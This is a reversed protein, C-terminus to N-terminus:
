PIRGEEKAVILACCPSVQVYVLLIDRGYTLLFCGHGCRNDCLFIKLFFYQMRMLGHQDVEPCVPAAWAAHERRDDILHGSIVAVYFDALHVDVFLRLQCGAKADHADRRENDEAVSFLGSFRDAENGLLLYFCQKTSRLQM